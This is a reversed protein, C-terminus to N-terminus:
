VNRAIRAGIWAMVPVAMSNGLAKYRPGDPCNPKINTYGRPFGQLFECCEPTLRRVQMRPHTSQTQNTAPRWVKQVTSLAQQLVWSGESAFWMNQLHRQAQPGPQSLESLYAGLKVSRQESSQWGFSACGESQAERVSQVFGEGCGKERSLSCYVVWRRSFAPLRVETGYLDSQLLPTPQLSNLIGLGWETFAKEGIEYRLESLVARTNTEQPSAYIDGQIIGKSYMTEDTTDLVVDMGRDACPSSDHRASLTRAVDGGFCVAPQNDGMESRLTPSIEESFRAPNGERKAIGPEFAITTDYCVASEGGNNRGQAFAIDSVCPDQTGRVVIEAESQGHAMCILGESGGGHDGGEARLTTVGERYQAFSSPAFCVPVILEDKSDGSRAGHGPGGNPVGAGADTATEGGKERSPPTDRRVGESEFLVKAPNFGARASAVVFVRRRRQALGFYQADLIRWAVTREPGIIYGADTWRKGAPVLPDEEGVLGALFCGFANDKTSLVGPVNEWVGIAPEEGRARRVLDLADLIHIYTLSLQGRDDELSNRLGAVSFAQCPTGGVLVEPAEIEGNLIKHVLKTMDGLNPVDPYHHKLVESPFKEIEALWAAGWGLPHWAVSAAEIGSCVSGYRM